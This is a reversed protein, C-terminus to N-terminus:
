LAAWNTGPADGGGAVTTDIQPVSTPAAPVGVAPAGGVALAQGAWAAAQVFMIATSASEAAYVRNGQSHKAVMIYSPSVVGVAPIEDTAYWNVGNSIGVGAGSPVGAPVAPDQRMGAVCAGAATATAAPSAGTILAGVGAAGNVAALTVNAESKGYTQNDAFLSEQATKANKLDSSAASNFGKIRYAAFQPIAVAALIGIIAVVILLEILTFGQRNRIKNLM